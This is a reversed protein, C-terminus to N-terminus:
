SRSVTAVGAPSVRNFEETPIGVRDELFDKLERWASSRGHGLFIRGSGSAAFVNAALSRTRRELHAAAAEALGALETCARFLSRIVNIRAYVHQHPAGQWGGNAARVDHSIMQGRPLQVQIATVLDFHVLEQAETLLEALRADRHDPDATDIISKFERRDSQFLTQAERGLREVEGLDPKGARAYIVKLVDDPNFERWDGISEPRFTLPTDGWDASWRAGPPPPQLDAYHVWAHYGLNSGSWSRGVEDAANNLRGLPITYKSDTGPSAVARLRDRILRLEAVLSTIDSTMDEQGDV